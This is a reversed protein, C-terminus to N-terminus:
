TARIMPLRWDQYVSLHCHPGTQVAPRECGEEGTLGLRGELKKRRKDKDGRTQITSDRRECQWEYKYSRQRRQRYLPTEGRESGSMSIHDTDVQNDRM